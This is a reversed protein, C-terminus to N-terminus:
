AIPPPRSFLPNPIDSDSYIFHYETVVKSKIAIFSHNPTIEQGSVPLIPTFNNTIMHECVLCHDPHNGEDNHTLTHLGILKTSVFLAVFVSAIINRFQENKVMAFTNFKLNFGM